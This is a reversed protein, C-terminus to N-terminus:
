HNVTEALDVVVTLALRVVEVRSPSQSPSQRSLSSQPQTGSQLIGSVHNGRSRRIDAYALPHNGIAVSPSIRHYEGSGRPMSGSSATCIGRRSARTARCPRNRISISRSKAVHDTRARRFIPIRVVGSRPDVLLDDLAVGRKVLRPDRVRDLRPVAIPQHAPEVADREAAREEALRHEVALGVGRLNREDREDLPQARAAIM